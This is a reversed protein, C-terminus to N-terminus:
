DASSACKSGAELSLEGEDEGKDEGKNEGKDEDEGLGVGFELGDLHAVPVGKVMGARTDWDGFCGGTLGTLLLNELGVWVALRM